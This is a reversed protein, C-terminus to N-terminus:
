RDLRPQAGTSGDDVRTAVVDIVDGPPQPSRPPTARSTQFSAQFRPRTAPRGFLRLLVFVFFGITVLVFAGILSAMVALSTLVFRLVRM